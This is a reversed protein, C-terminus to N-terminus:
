RDYRLTVKESPGSFGSPYITVTRRRGVRQRFERWGRGQCHEHSCSFWLAGSAMRGLYTGSRDGGTHEGVWPCVIRWKAGSGDRVEGLVEVARLYPVLDVDHGDYKRNETSKPSSPPPLPPVAQDLTEPEWAPVGTFYGGVLDLHPRRKYNATGPPRLVSSLVAKTTDGGAWVALRRNLRVAEEASVPRDLRWYLHRRKASSFILATPQPGDEPYAGHDEDLWLAPVTPMANDSRRNGYKRFLHVGFYTDRELQAEYM